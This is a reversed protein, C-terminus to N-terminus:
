REEQRRGELDAGGDSGAEETEVRRERNIRREQGAM